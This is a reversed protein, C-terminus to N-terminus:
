PAAPKPIGLWRPVQKCYEAYSEGRVERLHPEELFVVVLHFIVALGAGYVAARRSAFLLAQGFVVALVGLYMPNRTIRYFGNQVVKAPEEGLVFRLSRAFFIMPTGGSRLFEILCALYAIAGPTLLFWGLQWWGGHMGSLGPKGAFLWPLYGGVVCPVLITFLLGRLWLM